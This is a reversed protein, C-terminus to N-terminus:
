PNGEVLVLNRSMDEDCKDEERLEQYNM